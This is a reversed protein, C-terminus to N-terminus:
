MKQEHVKKIRLTATYLDASTAVLPCASGNQDDFVYRGGCVLCELHSLEVIVESVDDTGIRWKILLSPRECCTLAPM